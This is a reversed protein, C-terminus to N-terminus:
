NPVLALNYTPSCSASVTARVHTMPPLVGSVRKVASSSHSVEHTREHNLIPLLIILTTTVVIATLLVSPINKRSLVIPSRRTSKSIM